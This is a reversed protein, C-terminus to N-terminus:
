NGNDTEGFILQDLEKGYVPREMFLGRAPACQLHRVPRETPNQLLQELFDIEVKGRGVDVIAGVIRRVMRYLYGNGETAYTIKDGDSGIHSRCMTRRADKCDSSNSFNAFDNTGIFIQAAAAMAGIDMPGDGLSWSYRCSFPDAFGRQM